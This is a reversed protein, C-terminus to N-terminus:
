VNLPNAPSHTVTSYGTGELAFLENATRLFKLMFQGNSTINYFTSSRKDKGRKLKSVDVMMIHGEDILQELTKKLQTWSLNAHLMIRSAKKEGSNIADLVNMM